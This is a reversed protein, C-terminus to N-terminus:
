IKSKNTSMQVAKQDINSSKPTHFYMNYNVADAGPDIIELTIQIPQEAPMGPWQLVDSILYESPSFLRQAVVQNNINSFTLSIDPFDQEFDAHNTIITEIILANFTTPHSRVVLHRNEIKSVDSLPPLICGIHTCALEYLEALKPYKVLKEYHFWSAQALLTVLFALNALFLLTGVLWRKRPKDQEYQFTLSNLEKTDFPLANDQPTSSVDTEPTPSPEPETIGTDMNLGPEVKESSPEELDDLISSAWSEDVTETDVLEPSEDKLFQSKFSDSDPQDLDLFSASLEDGFKTSGSYSKDLKDEDPDDAFVADENTEPPNPKAAPIPKLPEAKAPRAAPESIYAEFKEFETTDFESMDLDSADFKPEEANDLETAFDDQLILQDDNDTTTSAENKVSPTIQYAIADFVNLCAGCRVKGKAANLQESSVKFSAKCHPCQTLQSDTM